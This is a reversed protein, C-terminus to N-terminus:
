TTVPRRSTSVPVSPATSRRLRDSPRVMAETNAARSQVTRLTRSGTASDSRATRRPRHDPDLQTILRQIALCEPLRGRREYIEAAREYSDIAADRYGLTALLLGRRHPWEAQEPALGELTRYAALAEMHRCRSEAHRAHQKLLQISATM